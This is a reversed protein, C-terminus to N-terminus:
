ESVGVLAFRKKINKLAKIKIGLIRYEELLEKTWTKSRTDIRAKEYNLKGLEKEVESLLEKVGM